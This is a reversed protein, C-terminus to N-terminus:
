QITSINQLGSEQELSAITKEFQMRTMYYDSTLNVYSRYSNILMLFDTKGTQYGSLNSMLVQRSQPLIGSRFIDLKRKFGDAKYYLDKIDGSVTAITARYASRAEDITASAEDVRSNAKALTWPVFPLTMGVSVSWGRFTGVPATMYELEFRFDPLYEQRALSKMMEGERIMLSDHLIMPRNHLAAAILSDLNTPFEVQEPIIAYGITDTDPRNLLAMLMSKTSREEQRATILDNMLMALEVQANLVDEQNGSGTGYRSQAVSIFQKVLKLNERKLVINQQIFWLDFYASKVKAIIENIKELRDHDSHEAQFEMLSRRTSLKSPFPISQMLDIRSFMAQSYNFGPMGERMYRLEPDELAGAQSVKSQLLESHYGSAQIEENNMIAEAVLMQLDLTVPEPVLITDEQARACLPLLLILAALIYQKM